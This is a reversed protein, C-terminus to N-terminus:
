DWMLLLIFMTNFIQVKISRDPISRSTSYFLYFYIFAGFLSSWATLLAAVAVLNGSHQMM